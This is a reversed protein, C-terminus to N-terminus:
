SDNPMIAPRDTQTYDVSSLRLWQKNWTLMTLSLSPIQAVLNSLGVSWRRGASKLLKNGELQVAWLSSQGSERIKFLTQLKILKLLFTKSPVKRSAVLLYHNSRSVSRLLDTWSSLLVISDITLAETTCPKWSYTRSARNQFSALHSLELTLYRYSLM